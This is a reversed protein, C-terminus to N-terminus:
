LCLYWPVTQFREWTGVGRVTGDDNLVFPHGLKLSGYHWILHKKTDRHVICVAGSDNLSIVIWFQKSDPFYTEFSCHSDHETVTLYKFDARKSRLTVLTGGIDDPGDGYFETLICTEDHRADKGACAGRGKGESSSRMYEKHEEHYYSLFKQNSSTGLFYDMWSSLQFREWNGIGPPLQTRVITETPWIDRLKIRGHFWQVWRWTGVHLFSVV